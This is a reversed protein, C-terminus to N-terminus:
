IECSSGIFLTLEKLLDIEYPESVANGDKDYIVKVVPRLPMLKNQRVVLCKEKSNLVVGSGTPFTAINMTFKKVLEADFYSNSMGFLYEIVENVPKSKQQRTGSIMNSFTDCIAVLKAVESIEGGKLKLPYGSGDVREHHMLVAVKSYASCFNQEGLFDYGVKPHAREIHSELEQESHFEALIKKDNKIKAKGIDHLMAGVAVDKLKLLNYGMHTGIITAMVCVNVSHSYMSNDCAKIEAINVMVEKNSQVDELVSNVSKMISSNDTKGERCYKDIMEKVAHRTTQRTKESISDDIVIGKSIDDEVYISQIGLGKLREIYFSSLEVGINLLIRGSDDFIQKALKEGGKLKSVDIIRM